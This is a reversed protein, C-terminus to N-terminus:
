AVYDSRVGFTAEEVSANAGTGKWAYKWLGPFGAAIAIDAHYNGVSDKVATASAQVGDPRVYACTVTGPDVPVGNADTFVCSVRVVDGADYTNM